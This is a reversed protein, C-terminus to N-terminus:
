SVGRNSHLYRMASARNLTGVLRENDLVLAQNISHEDLLSLAEHLPDDPGVSQFPTPTMAERVSVEAWRERAIPKVETLTIIGVIRDGECVAVARGNGYLLHTFVADAVSVDPGITQPDPEMADRVYIGELRAQVDAQARSRTASSLLFWGILGWWLGSQFSGVFIQYAGVGLMLIGFAQGGRAAIKTARTASGTAQWVASRLVRGGDLPFAPLMNLVALALNILWLYWVVAAIPDAKTPLAQHLAWTVGFLLLSTLPGVFAVIFEERASRPEAGLNSVGGLMFLTIGEAPLGRSRAVLSHALEHILVSLFLSLTAILGTSWYTVASWGLYRGPLISTSLLWWFLALTLFWSYHIGVPIGAIRGLTFNSNM